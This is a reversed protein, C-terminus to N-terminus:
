RIVGGWEVVTFGNRAPTRISFPQADVPKELPTFDMLVRIITDPRPLVTLPALEDMARNGLFTVFYYPAEQMRPLWFEKFDAIEDAILGQAALKENLFSEVDGRAVVWGKEPQAYLGGRGEWFLYPWRVGDADTLTGDPQATVNWGDGYAPESFTMGGVPEVKVSVDTTREPYLYIVPKGCEAQPLFQKSKFRVLRGLPDRWFFVPKAAVFQEYSLKQQPEMVFYEQNYIDRLYTNNPDKFGLLPENAPTRGIEKLEADANMEYPYVVALMDRVGCGGFGTWIYEGGTYEGPGWRIGSPVGSADMFDIREAYAAVMGSPTRIYFGNYGTRPSTPSVPEPVPTTPVTDTYVDGWVPDTFVKVLPLLNRTFDEWRGSPGFFGARQRELILTGDPSMLVSPLQLEPIAYDRDITFPLTDETMYFQEGERELLVRKGDPMEVFLFPRGPGMGETSVVAYIKGDAYPGRVFTGILHSLECAGANCPDYTPLFPTGSYKVWAQWQADGSVAQPTATTGPEPVSDSPAMRWVYLGAAAALIVVVGVLGVM